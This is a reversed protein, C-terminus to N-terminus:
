GYHPGAPMGLTILGSQHFFTNWRRIMALATIERNTNTTFGEWVRVILGGNVEKVPAM